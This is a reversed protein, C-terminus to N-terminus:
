KSRQKYFLILTTSQELRQFEVSNQLISAFIYKTKTFNLSELFAVFILLIKVTSKVNVVYPWISLSSKM